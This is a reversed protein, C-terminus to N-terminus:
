YKEFDSDDTGEKEMDSKFTNAADSDRIGNEASGDPKGILAKIKKIEEPMLVEKEETKEKRKETKFYEIGTQLKEENGLGPKPVCRRGFGRSRTTERWPFGPFRGPLHTGLGPIPFSFVLFFFIDDDPDASVIPLIGSGSM